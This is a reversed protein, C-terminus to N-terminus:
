VLVIFFPISVILNSLNNVSVINAEKSLYKFGLNGLMLLVVTLIMLSIASLRGVVEDRNNQQIMTSIVVKTTISNAKALDSESDYIDLKLSMLVISCILLFIGLIDVWRLKQHFLLWFFFAILAPKLSLLSTLIGVNMEISIAQKYSEIFTWYSFMNVFVIGFFVWTKSWSIKSVEKDSSNNIPQNTNFNETDDSKLYSKSMPLEYFIEYVWKFYSSNINKDENHLLGKEEDSTKYYFSIFVATSFNTVLNGPAQLWRAM